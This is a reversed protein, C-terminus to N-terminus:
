NDDQDFDIADMPSCPRSGESMADLEKLDRTSWNGPANNIPLITICNSYDTPFVGYEDDFTQWIEYCLKRGQEPTAAGFHTYLIGLTVYSARPREPDDYPDM